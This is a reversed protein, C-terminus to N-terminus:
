KAKDVTEGGGDGAIMELLSRHDKTSRMPCPNAGCRIFHIHAEFLVGCRSCTEDKYGEAIAAGMKPSRWSEFPSLSPM